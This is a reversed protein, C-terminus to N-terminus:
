PRGPDKLSMGSKLGHGTFLSVILAEEPFRHLQKAAGAAAVAATPEIYVGRMHMEQLMAAIEEESVTVFEGGSARVAALIQGARIPEAVAVGEALTPKKDVKAAANLGQAFATALPSCHEAQVAIIKPMRPVVGAACLESFGIFAGLLLTGNGVPAVFVDPGRWGLQECIEFAITKTGHFFFPNWAHSAYYSRGAAKLAARATEERSGPIRHLSAGAAKIQLLKSPSAAAPVYIDCAIRAAAGYAAIAAGANGSSDEVVREVGLEGAKSMMVAAGRDKFSGSPFLYDMKFHVDRSKIKLAIIPTFGEGLTVINEDRQVPIAHRYRWMGPATTEIKHRDFRPINKIDLPGGCRCRWVPENLEYEASCSACVLTSVIEEPMATVLRATQMVETM